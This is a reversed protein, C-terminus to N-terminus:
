IMDSTRFRRFVNVTFGTITEFIVLFYTITKFHVQLLLCGPPGQLSHRFRVQDVPDQLTPPVSSFPAALETVPGHLQLVALVPRHVAVLLFSVIDADRREGLDPSLYAPLFVILWRQLGLM